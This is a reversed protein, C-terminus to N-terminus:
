RAALEDLQEATVIWRRIAERSEDLNTRAAPLDGGRRCVAERANEHLLMRNVLREPLAHM